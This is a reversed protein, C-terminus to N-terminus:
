NGHAKALDNAVQQDTIGALHAIETQSMGAASLRAALQRREAILESVSEKAEAIEAVLRRMAAVDATATATSLSFESVHPHPEEPAPRTVYLVWSALATSAAM